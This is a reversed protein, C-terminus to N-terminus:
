KQIIIKTSAFIKGSNLTLLYTGNEFSTLDLEFSHDGSGYKGLHGKHLANGKLDTILYSVMLTNKLEFSVEVMGKGPNPTINKIKLTEEVKRIFNLGSSHDKGDLPIISMYINIDGDNKRGDSWFPIAHHATTVTKNYEGVGFDETKDGITTFDTANSTVPFQLSFDLSDPNNSYTIFYDTNTNNELDKRKDYFSLVPIGKLNVDITSYFQDSNNKKDNNIINPSSWTNGLDDSYSLYIDYGGASISDIGPGTWSAYIRGSNPGASKDVAIYPCPYYRDSSVGVIDADDSGGTYGPYYIKSVERPESFTLGGDTSLTNFFYYNLSDYSGVFGIFVNGDADVDISSFQVFYFSDSSVTVPNYVFSTDSPHYTDVKINGKESGQELSFDVYAMYVNGKYQSDGTDAAMWQKDLFHDIGELTFLDFAKSEFYINADWNAGGDKSVAHYIIAKGKFTIFDTLALVIYTLHLDGKSDFVLVPDGGGLVLYDTNVIGDFSSKQWTNGFDRTYYTSISLPSDQQPNYSFNIASVIINNSDSPNIAAFLESEAGKDNDAVQKEGIAGRLAQDNNAIKKLDEVKTKGLKMFSKENLTYKLLEKARNQSYVSLATILIVVVVFYFKQIKM